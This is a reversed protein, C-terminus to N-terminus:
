HEISVLGSYIVSRGCQASGDGWKQQYTIRGIMLTGSSRAVTMSLMCLFTPLPQAHPEPSIRNSLCVSLCFCEDCYKAVARAPLSYIVVCCAAFKGVPFFVLAFGVAM